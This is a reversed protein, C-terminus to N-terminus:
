ALPFPKDLNAAIVAGKIQGHQLNAGRIVHPRINVHPRIARQSGKRRHAAFPQQHWNVPAKEVQSQVRPPLRDLSDERCVADLEPRGLGTQWGLDLTPDLQTRFPPSSRARASSCKCTPQQNQSLNCPLAIFPVSDLAASPRYGSIRVTLSRNKRTAADFRGSAM